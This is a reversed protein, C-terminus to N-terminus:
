RGSEKRLLKNPFNKMLLMYKDGSQPVEDFGLVSVPTSPTAQKVNNGNEDYMARVKGFTVGSIINDGVKLTGNQILVTAVPGRNKDLEAELVVALALRNPNAKLEQMDSVLLIMNLLNDIGVGTKASVPVLITDGGWEEPLVGNESLQQKIREPNAEPKDMKNIAVIMPVNAAKIHNIAEITQPMIGDDAAVVLIAIDTIKAGRARM